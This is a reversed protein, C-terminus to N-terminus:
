HSSLRFGFDWTPVSDLNLFRAETSSSMTTLEVMGGVLVDQIVICLGKLVTAVFLVGLIAAFTDFRDRPVHPMVYTKIWTFVLLKRSAANLRSVEGAKENKHLKIGCAALRLRRRSNSDLIM